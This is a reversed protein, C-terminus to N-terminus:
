INNTEFCWIENPYLKNDYANSNLFKLNTQGSNGSFELLIWYMANFRDTPLYIWHTWRQATMQIEM